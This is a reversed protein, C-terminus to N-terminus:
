LHNLDFLLLADGVVEGGECVQQTTLGSAESFESVLHVNHQAPRSGVSEAEHLESGPYLCGAAREEPNMLRCLARRNRLDAQDCLHSPPHVVNLAAHEAQSAFVVARGKYWVAEIQARVPEVMREIQVVDGICWCRSEFRCIAVHHPGVVSKDRDLGVLPLPTVDEVQRM